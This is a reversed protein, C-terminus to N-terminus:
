PTFDHLSMKFLFGKAGSTLIFPLLGESEDSLIELIEDTSGKAAKKQTRWQPRLRAVV